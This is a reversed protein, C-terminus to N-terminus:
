HRGNTGRLAAADLVIPANAKQMAAQMNAAKIIHNQICMSNIVEHAKARPVALSITEGTAFLLRSHDPSDPSEVVNLVEEPNFYHTIGLDSDNLAGLM